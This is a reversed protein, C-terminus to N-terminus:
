NLLEIANVWRITKGAVALHYEPLPGRVGRALPTAWGASFSNHSALGEPKSDVEDSAKGRIQWGLVYRVPM